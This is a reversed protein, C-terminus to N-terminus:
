IEDLNLNVIIYNEPRPMHRESHQYKHDFEHCCMRLTKRIKGDPQFKQKSKECDGKLHERQTESM